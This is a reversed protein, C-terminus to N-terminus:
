CRFGQLAIEWGQHLQRTGHISPCARGLSPSPEALIRAANKYTAAADDDKGGSESMGDIFEKSILGKVVPRIDAPPELGAKVLLARYCLVRRNYRTMASRDTREPPEFRIDLFNKIYISDKNDSLSSDIIAKGIQLNDDTFFNLLMLKRGPDNPHPTIGYTVVDDRLERHKEPPGCAWVNKIANANQHSDADQQNENAYEGNYDFM